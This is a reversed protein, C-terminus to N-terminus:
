PVDQLVARIAAIETLGQSRMKTFLTTIFGVRAKRSPHTTKEKPAEEDMVFGGTSPGLVTTIMIPTYKLKLLLCTGILDAAVEHKQSGLSAESTGIQQGIESACIHGLEHALAFKVLLPAEGSMWTVTESVQVYCGKDDTYQQGDLGSGEINIMPSVTLGLAEPSKGKFFLSGAADLLSTMFDKYLASLAM